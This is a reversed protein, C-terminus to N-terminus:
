FDKETQIECYDVNQMIQGDMQPDALDHDAM